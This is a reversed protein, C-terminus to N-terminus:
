TNIAAPMALTDLMSMVRAISISPLPPVKVMLSHLLLLLLLLLVVVLVCRRRFPTSGQARLECRHLRLQLAQSSRIRADCQELLRVVVRHVCVMQLKM